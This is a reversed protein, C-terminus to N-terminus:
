VVRRLREPASDDAHKHQGSDEGKEEDAAEATVEMTPTATKEKPAKSPKASPKESPEHTPQHTPQHTPSASPVFTPATSTPAASPAATTPASTTPEATPRATPHFTPRWPKPIYQSWPAHTEKAPAPAQTPMFEQTPRFPEPIYQVWPAKTPARTPAFPLTPRYPEPIFHSWPAETAVTPAATPTPTHGKGLIEDSPDVQQHQGAAVILLLGGVFCLLAFMLARRRFTSKDAQEQQFERMQASVDVELPAEFTFPQSRRGEEAYVNPVPQYQYRSSGYSTAGYDRPTESDGRGDQTKTEAFRWWSDPNGGRSSSRSDRLM